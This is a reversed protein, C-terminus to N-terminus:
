RRSKKRPAQKSKKKKAASKKPKKYVPKQGVQTMANARDGKGLARRLQAADRSVLAAREDANLGAQDLESGPDEAFRKMREPDSALDVLFDQLKESM